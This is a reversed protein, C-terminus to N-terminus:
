NALRYEEETISFTARLGETIYVERLDTVFIADVGDLSEVLDLADELGMVYCATSLADASMSRESVITVQTLGAEAPYGTESNLIHHYRKGDQEFYREYPGSTVITQDQAELIGLYTSRKGDPQQVGIRWAEGNPKNGIVLINGGFDLLAHDIGAERLMQAAEDAAYGKAIGGVDVGMGEKPLYIENNPLLELEGHDVLSRARELEEEAPVRADETGIGWLSVLPWITVNFAGETLESFYLGREVVHYTDPSVSVAHDGAARNVQLLETTDYDQTSTSMKAEIEAIRDFVENLLRDTAPKGYAQIRLVTGLLSRQAVTPDPSSESTCGALLALILSIPIVHRAM